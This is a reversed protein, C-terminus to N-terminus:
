NPKPEPKPEPEPNTVDTRSNDQDVRKDVWNMVDEIFAAGEEVGQAQAADWAATLRGELDLTADADGSETTGETDAEVGMQFDARSQERVVIEVNYTKHIGSMTSPGCGGLVLGLLLLVMLTVYWSIRKM